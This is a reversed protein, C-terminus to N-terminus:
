FFYDSYGENYADNLLLNDSKKTIKDDDITVNKIDEKGNPKIRSIFKTLFNKIM